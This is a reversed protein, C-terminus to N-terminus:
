PVPAPRWGVIHRPLGGAQLAALQPMHRPLGGAQLLGYKKALFNTHRDAPAALQMALTHRSARRPRPSATSARGCVSVLWLSFVPYGGKPYTLGGM